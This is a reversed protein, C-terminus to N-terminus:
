LATGREFSARIDATYKDYYRAIKKNFVRNHENIYTIDGEDENTRKRHFKGKKEIDKNIKSVVRDIAEDSPKSDGYILTNADRYLGESALRRQEETVVMASSSAGGMSDFSTLASSSGTGMAIAKQRNYAELDPKIMDLDKKYKRRSAQADDHFEYDARRRKRALKKEWEDNEEITYEWNKKREVDEGREEADAKLRLTEALKRQRELRALERATLKAKANDEALAQKNAKTGAAMKKRLEEMKARREELSLKPKSEDAQSGERTSTSEMGEMTMEDVFEMAADTVGKGKVASGQVPTGSGGSSKGSEVGDMTMESVFEKAAKGIDKAKAGLDGRTDEKTMTEPATVEEVFEKAASGVKGLKEVAGEVAHEVASETDVIAKEVTHAVSSVTDMASSTSAEPQAEDVNMPTDEEVVDKAQAAKGKKAGKKKSGKPPM